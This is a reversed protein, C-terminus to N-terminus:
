LVHPLNGWKDRVFSWSNSFRLYVGSIGLAMLDRAVLVTELRDRAQHPCLVRDYHLLDSHITDEYIRPLSLKWISASGKFM